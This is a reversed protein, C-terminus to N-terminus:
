VVTTRASRRRHGCHGLGRHGKGPGIVFLGWGVIPWVPWFYGAGTLAWIAVLLLSTALFTQLEPRMRRRPAPPPEAERRPLDGVLGDLEAYTRASLAVELREELEDPTLRGEAAAQRLREAIRERDADAARLDSDSM